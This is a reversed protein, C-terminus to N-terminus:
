KLSESCEFFALCVSQGSVFKVPQSIQLEPASSCPTKGSQGHFPILVVVGSSEM